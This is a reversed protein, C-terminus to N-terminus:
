HLKIKGNVLNRFEMEETGDKFFRKPVVVAMNADIYLYFAKSSEKFSKIATWNISGEANSAKYSIKEDTFEVEKEGLMSGDQDPVNKSKNLSRKILFFYVLVCAVSSILTPALKFEKYNLLLQLFIITIVGNIITRKLGKSYFNFKNFDAYDERTIEITLTM